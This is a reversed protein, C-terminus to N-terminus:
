GIIVMLAYMCVRIYLKKIHLRLEAKNPSKFICDFRMPLFYRLLSNKQAKM